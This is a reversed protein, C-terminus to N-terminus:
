RGCCNLVVWRHSQLFNAEKPGARRQRSRRLLRCSSTERGRGRFLAPGLPPPAIAQRGADTRAERIRCRAPRGSRPSAGAALRDRAAGPGPDQRLLSALAPERLARPAPLGQLWRKEPRARQAGAYSRRSSERSSSSSAGRARRHPSRRRAMSLRRTGLGARSQLERSPVSVGAPTRLRFTREPEHRSQIWRSKSM